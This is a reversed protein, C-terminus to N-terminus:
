AEEAWEPTHLMEPDIEEGGELVISKIKGLRQRKNNYAYVEDDGEDQILIHKGSCFPFTESLGCTCVMIHSGDSLKVLRPGKGKFLVLRAM